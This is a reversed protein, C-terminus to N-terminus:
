DAISGSNRLILLTLGEEAYQTSDVSSSEVSYGRNAAARSVNELSCDNDVLVSFTDGTDNKLANLVMLVPQPCSLGRTDVFVMLEGKQM